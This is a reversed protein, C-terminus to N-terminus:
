IDKTSETGEFHTSDPTCMPKSTKCRGGGGGGWVGPGTTCNGVDMTSLVRWLEPDPPLRICLRPLPRWLPLLSRNHGTPCIHWERESVGAEGM